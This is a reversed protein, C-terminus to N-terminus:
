VNLITSMMAEIESQTIRVMGAPSRSRSSKPLLGHELQETRINNNSFVFTHFPNQPDVRLARFSAEPGATAAARMPESGVPMSSTPGFREREHPTYEHDPRGGGGAGAGVGIGWHWASISEGSWVPHRDLIGRHVKTLVKTISISFKMIFSEQEKKLIAIARAVGTLM